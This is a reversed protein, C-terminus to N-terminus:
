GVENRPDRELQRWSVRPVLISLLFAETRQLLWVYQTHATGVLSYNIFKSNKAKLGLTLVIVSFNLKQVDCM